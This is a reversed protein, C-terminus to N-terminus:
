GKGHDEEGTLLGAFDFLFEDFSPLYNPYDKVKEEDWAKQLKAGARLFENLEKLMTREGESRRAGNGQRYPIYAM